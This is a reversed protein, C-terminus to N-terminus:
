LSEMGTKQGHCNRCLAELNSIHNSGGQDLRVKHDVEFWADLQSKCQTCTWGQLSAVYKKKVPSVSRNHLRNSQKVQQMGLTDHSSDQYGSNMMRKFQPATYNMAQGTTASLLPSIMDSSQKDIPLYKIMGNVHGLLSTYDNPYKKMFLYMGLLFICIAGIKFHKKWGMILKTYKGDHYINMGLFAAIAIFILEQKM